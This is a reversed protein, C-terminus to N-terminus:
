GGFTLSISFPPLDYNLEEYAAGKSTKSGIRIMIAKYLGGLQYSGECFSCVLVHRVCRSAQLSLTWSHPMCLSKSRMVQLTRERPGLCNERAVFQRELEKPLIIIYTVCIPLVCIEDSEAIQCFIRVHKRGLGKMAHEHRRKM